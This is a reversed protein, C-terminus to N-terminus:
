PKNLWPYRVYKGGINTSLDIFRVETPTYILIILNSVNADYNKPELVNHGDTLVLEQETSSKGEWTKGDIIATNKGRRLIIFVNKTVIGV